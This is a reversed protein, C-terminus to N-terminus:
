EDQCPPNGAGYDDYGFGGDNPVKFDDVLVVAEEWHNFIIDLEQLVPLEGGWHADLYFFVRKGALSEKSSLGNLFARSDGKFLHVNDFRRLAALSFGYLRSSHEVTYVPLLSLAALYATTTGRYTGTEVIAELCLNSLFAEVLLQRHKQGNFAGGWSTRSEPFRFYDIVGLLREGLLQKVIKKM